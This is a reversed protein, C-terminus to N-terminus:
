VNTRVARIMRDLIESLIVQSTAFNLRVFSPCAPDFTEGASFAVKAREHFFEFAPRKLNLGSCDVWGLYTAEPVYFRLEPLEAQITQAVFDRSKRLAVLVEDLWPQGNDWAAVTTDIGPSSTAGLLRRPMRTLFRDRLAASGFCLVGCRLGPINFAKTASNLTVTRGAIEPGLSAFPVHKGDYVLDCHIEDAIVTLDNEIAVDAIAELEARSYVRGTPNHPNCLLIIRTREDVLSALQGVDLDIRDGDYRVPHSILRRGTDLIAERFPPYSPMQLIVGDRPESFAVVCAFSGQVLDAIPQVLDADVAWGFRSQMRRAFAYSVARDQHEKNRLPYGFDKMRLLNDYAERVVPAPAFDMEAVWAPIVDAGYQQWKATQRARLLEIPLDEILEPASM